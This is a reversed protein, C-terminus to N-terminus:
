GSRIWGADRIALTVMPGCVAKSGWRTPPPTSASAPEYYRFFNYNDGTEPDHYQGPFRLPCSPGSVVQALAQGWVTTRNRWAVDGDPAVMEMPTGVLDTVLAYFQRDVWEQSAGAAGDASSDATRERQTIPRFSGPAFDWTTVDRAGDTGNVAQEALTAGDWAFRVSEVVDCSDSVRHKAIRRGIPDYAYTWRAGDPTSVAVLQDEANWTFTWTQQRGSLTRRTRQVMRGQADHRYTTNGARRMVTGAYERPGQAEPNGAGDPAAPWTGHTINGAADYAYQETWGQGRVATIRGAADLDFHRSGALHDDIAALYGDQHYRYARQQVVRAAGNPRHPDVATVTQSALRHNADWGQAITAGAGLQRRIERGAADYAFSMTNTGSTLVAPRGDADYTWASEAGSPTTRTVRRGLMDYTSRVAAGNVTESLVRGLADREYRLDADPSAASLLRGAPDFEYTTVTDGARKEVVNGIVDRTLEVRQRAGNIRAVLQGAEDHEYRLERGNFDVESTLRGAADYTYRWVLGQPNRVAVLRLAADHTFELRAGDPGTQAKPLDFHGYETRTTKGVADTHEVVNGEGDYRWRETSGDQLTRSLLRGEITWSMRLTAGSPDVVSSVRGFVDRVYRTTGGEADVVSVPLGASDTEVRRINGLVNTISTLGGRDDYTYRTIAGTPDVLSVVNGADDYFRQWTAGDPEVIRTPLGFANYEATVESGDAQTVQTVNGRGDYTRRLTRGLPDTM